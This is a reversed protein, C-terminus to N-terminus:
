RLTELYASLASLEAGTLPVEPMHNGPKIAQPDDVWVAFNARTVPLTGAAITRRSAVHSLDPAVLGQAPTGAV